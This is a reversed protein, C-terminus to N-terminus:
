GFIWRYLPYIVSVVFVDNYVKYGLNFQQDADKYQRIIPKYSSTKFGYNVLQMLICDFLVLATVIFNMYESTTVNFPHFRFHSFQVIILLWICVRFIMGFSWLYTVNSKTNTVLLIFTSIVGGAFMGIIFRWVLSTIDLLVLCTLISLLKVITDVTHVIFAKKSRPILILAKDNIYNM